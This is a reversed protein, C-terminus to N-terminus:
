EERARRALLLGGAVVALTVAALVLALRLSLVSGLSVGHGVELDAASRPAPRSLPLEPVRGEEDAKAADTGEQKGAAEDPAAEASTAKAEAAQPETQAPEEGSKRKETPEAATSEVPSTIRQDGASPQEAPPSELVPTAPEGEGLSRRVPKSARGARPQDARKEPAGATSPAPQGEPSAHEPESATDAGSLVPMRVTPQPSAEEKVDFLVFSPAAAGSGTFNALHAKWDWDTLLDVGPNAAKIECACPGNIFAVLDALNEATIGRGVFPPLVYGRGFVGFVMTGTLDKLDDEVQLSQQVLWRERADDRAVELVGVELNEEGARGVIESVASRAASNQGADRGLLTLLVGQKGDSLQQALASRKPSSVMKRVTDVDLRGAFVERGRPSTVVHLPLTDSKHRAWVRRHGYPATSDLSSVDVSAFGLNAHGETGRAVRELYENAEADAAAEEGRHLYHVQYPDRVWNQITYEYVPTDCAWAVAGGAVVVLVLRASRVLDTIVATRKRETV